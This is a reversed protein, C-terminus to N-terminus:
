KWGKTRFSTTYGSSGFTHTVSDVYYTKGNWMPDVGSIGLGVGPVIDPIGVCTGEATQTARVADKALRTALKKCEDNNLFPANKTIIQPKSMKSKYSGGYIMSSEGYAQTLSSGTVKGQFAAYSSDVKLTTLGKGPGLDTLRGFLDDADIICSQGGVIILERGCYKCLVDKLYVFDNENQQLQGHKKLVPKSRLTSLPCIDKYNDLITKMTEMYTSDTKWTATKVGADMMLKVADFATVTVKPSSSYEYTVSGIYGVFVKELNSGYGLSISIKQGPTLDKSFSRKEVDYGGALVLQASSATDKNLTITISEANLGKEKKGTVAAVILSIISGNLSINAVPNLFGGYSASLLSFTKFGM